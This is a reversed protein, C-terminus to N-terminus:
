LLRELWFDLNGFFLKPLWKDPKLEGRGSESLGPDEQHRWRQNCPSLRGRETCRFFRQVRLSEFNWLKLSAMIGGPASGYSGLCGVVQAWCCLPRPWCQAPSCSIRIPGTISWNPLYPLNLSPLDPNPYTLYPLTALLVPPSTLVSCTITKWKLWQKRCIDHCKHWNKLIHKGLM